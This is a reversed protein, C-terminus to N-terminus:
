ELCVLEGLTYYGMKDSANLTGTDGFHVRLVPLSSKDFLYGEDSRWTDDDSSACNCASKTVCSAEMGCACMRSGPAAGGWYNM